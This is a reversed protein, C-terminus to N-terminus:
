EHCKVDAKKADPSKMLIRELNLYWCRDEIIQAYIYSNDILHPKDDLIIFTSLEDTATKEIISNIFIDSFTLIVCTIKYYESHLAIAEAAIQQDGPNFDREPTLFFFIIDKETNSDLFTFLKQLNTMSDINYSIFQNHKQSWTSLSILKNKLNKFIDFESQFQGSIINMRKINQAIFSYNKNNM